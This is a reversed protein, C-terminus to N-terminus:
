ALPIDNDKKSDQYMKSMDEYKQKLTSLRLKLSRCQEKDQIGQALVAIDNARWFDNVRAYEGNECNFVEKLIKLDHPINFADKTDNYSFLYYFNDFGSWTIASLCLPCPEHTAIFICDKPNPREKLQNYTRLCSVEGHLLPWELEKNTDAAVLELDRKRIVAAGFVKNGEQVAEKTKPLIDHEIVDLLRSLFDAGVSECSM